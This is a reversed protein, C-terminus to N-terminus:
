KGAVLIGTRLMDIMWDEFDAYEKKDVTNKYIEKLDDETFAGECDPEYCNYIKM